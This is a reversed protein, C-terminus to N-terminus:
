GVHPMGIVEWVAGLSLVIRLSGLLYPVRSCGVAYIIQDWFMASSKGVVGGPSNLIALSSVLPFIWEMQRDQQHAGERKHTDRGKKGETGNPGQVVPKVLQPEGPAASLGEKAKQESAAGISFYMELGRHVLGLGEARTGWGRPWGKLVLSGQLWYKGIVGGSGAM